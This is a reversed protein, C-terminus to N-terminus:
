DRDGGEGLCDFCPPVVSPNPCDDCPEFPVFDGPLQNKHLALACKAEEAILDNLKKDNM